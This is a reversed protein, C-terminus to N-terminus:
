PYKFVDCIFNLSPDRTLIHILHNQEQLNCNACLEPYTLSLKAQTTYLKPSNFRRRSREHQRKRKHEQKKKKNKRDKRDRSGSRSRSTSRSLSRSRSRSVSRSRSRTTSISRVPSLSRSCSRNNKGNKGRERKSKSKSSSKQFLKKRKRNKRKSIEGDESGSDPSSSDSSDSTSTSITTSSSYSDCSSSSSSSSSSSTSPARRKTKETKRNEVSGIIEIDPMKVPTTIKDLAALKEPLRNSDLSSGPVFDDRIGFANKARENKSEQAMALEHSDKVMPRGSSDRVITDKKEELLKARFTAVEEEIEEDPVEQEELLERLELCRVEIQRRREHEVLAPDYARVATDENSQEKIKEKTKRVFSLNRQVYGNTGSGRPTTLGIGNYM